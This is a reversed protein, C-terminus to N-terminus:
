VLPGGSNDSIDKKSAQQEVDANESDKMKQYKKAFLNVNRIGKTVQDGMLCRYILITGFSFAIKAAGVLWTDRRKSLIKVNEPEKLKAICAAINEDPTRESKKLELYAAEVIKYKQWALYDLSTKDTPEHHKRIGYESYSFEKLDKDLKDGYKQCVQLYEREMEEYQKEKEYKKLSVKVESSQVPLKGENELQNINEYNVSFDYEEYFGLGACAFKHMMSVVFVGQYKISTYTIDGQQKTVIEFGQNEPLDFRCTRGYSSYKDLRINSAPINLKSLFTVAKVSPRSNRGQGILFTPMKAGLTLIVARM